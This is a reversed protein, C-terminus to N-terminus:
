RGLAAIAALAAEYTEHLERFADASGGPRDPYCDLARRHYARRVDGESVHPWNAGLGLAVIAPPPPPLARPAPEQRVRVSLRREIADVVVDFLKWLAVDRLRMDAPASPTRRNRGDGM